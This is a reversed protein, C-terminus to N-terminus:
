GGVRQGDDSTCAGFYFLRALLLGAVIAGILEAVHICGAAWVLGFFAAVFVAVTTWKCAIDM